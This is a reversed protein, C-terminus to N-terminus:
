AQQTGAVRAAAPQRYQNIPLRVKNKVHVSSPKISSESRLVKLHNVVASVAVARLAAKQAASKEYRTRVTGKLTVIGDSACVSIEKSNGNRHRALERLVLQEIESDRM